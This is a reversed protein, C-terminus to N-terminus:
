GYVGGTAVSGASNGPLYNAGGGNVNILSNNASFYRPGTASGSFTNGAYMIRGGDTATAYTGFAPTGTITVTIATGYNSIIGGRTARMHVGSAAGTINYASTSLYIRGGDTAGMHDYGSAVAGFDMKGTVWVESDFYVSIGTGTTTTQIKFGALEFKAGWAATVADSGTVSIVVNSPTTTDGIFRVNRGVGANGVAGGVFEKRLTLGGTYTGAAVNVTVVQGNLDLHTAIFEAAYSLTLWAGGSTNALGDNSDSGDTRVYYTRSTTLVERASVLPIGTARQYHLCRWNGSGLYELTAADGAATTINAAGPLILSTANYTLLLAGTFRIFYLPNAVSASSGLSTITTTGTISAINSSLTGLDTTTASAITAATTLYTVLTGADDKVNAGLNLVGAAGQLPFLEVTSPVSAWTGATTQTDKSRGVCIYPVNSRATASYMVTASDAAGAGGEATTSAIGHPGFFKTSAALELTGANDILYWYISSLTASAHGLTSGSSITLSLAASILRINFSGSSATSNRLAASVVNVADADTSGDRQKVACTLANSGVSFALAINQVNGFVGLPDGRERMSALLATLATKFDAETVGSGTLDVILPLSTAM